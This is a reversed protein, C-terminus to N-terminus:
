STVSLEGGLGLLWTLGGSSACGDRAFFPSSCHLHPSPLPHKPSLHACHLQIDVIYLTQTWRWSMKGHGSFKKLVRGRAGWQQTSLEEFEDILQTYYLPLM